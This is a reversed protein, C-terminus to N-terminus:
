GKYIRENHWSIFEQAPREIDNKPLYLQAGNLKYYEKGNDFEEHIRKSVEFRYKPSITAYGSDFIGHIDARLLIGNTVAHPGEKAFPKIHAAELAPLTKEHTIACRRAYADTVRIRFIGQGLRPAILVPEGYRAPEEAIGTAKLIDERAQLRLLVQEWLEKGIAAETDYRKGVQIGAKWDSPEDIWQDEAFFFPDSLLICGIKYDEKTPAHRRYKEIRRRTEDLSVAGNKEGFADWALSTPLITSHSFFGGGVIANYPSHLKFLFIEGPSIAKFPTASPKWFNVEDLEPIGSVFKYWDYDTIGVYMRM